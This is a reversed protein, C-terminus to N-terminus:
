KPVAGEVLFMRGHSASQRIPKIAEYAESHYWERALAASEFAIVVIGQPPDGDLREPKGGAVLFKYHGKFPAFTEPIKGGYRRIANLDTIADAESIVYAPSTNARQAAVSWGGFVGITMGALVALTLKGSALERLM